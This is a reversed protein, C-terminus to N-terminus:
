VAGGLLRVADCCVAGCFEAGVAGNGVAAEVAFWAEGCAKADM